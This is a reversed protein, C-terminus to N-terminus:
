KENNEGINTGNLSNHCACLASLVQLSFRKAYAEAFRNIAEFEEDTFPTCKKDM